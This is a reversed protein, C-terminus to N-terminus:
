ADPQLGFSLPIERTKVAHPLGYRKKFRDVSAGNKLPVGKEVRYDRFGLKDYFSLGGKNDARITANLMTLGSDRATHVTADFLASGVGRRKGNARVWTGIDGWGEEITTERVVTQFGSLEAQLQYNGPPLDLVRYRGHDDSVQTRQAGTDVQTVLISVGPMVSKQADTVTGSISGTTGQAAVITPLLTLVSLM